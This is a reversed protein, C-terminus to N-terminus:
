AVNCVVDDCFVNSLLIYILVFIEHNLGDVEELGSPAPSM